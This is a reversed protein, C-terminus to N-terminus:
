QRRDADNTHKASLVHQKTMPPSNVKTGISGGRGHMILTNMKVPFSSLAPGSAGNEAVPMSNRTPSPAVDTHFKIAKM